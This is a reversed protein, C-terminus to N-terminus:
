NVKLFLNKEAERRNTLGNIVTLKGNVKGKNWKGFQDAASKYDKQNLVKLLTSNSFATAGINYVLSALADFQNQSVPVTVLEDLTNDVWACDNILYKEAQALTCTDGQKVAVGDPYKITGYGITWIGVSDKYAKDRFGEALKILKYGNTSINMNVKTILPYGILTAFTEFGLQNIVREGAAVQHSTLSGYKSRMFTFASAINDM